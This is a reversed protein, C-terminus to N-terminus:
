ATVSLSSAASATGGDNTMYAHMLKMIQMMVKEESDNEAVTSAATASGTGGSGATSQQYAMAERFSVKGDGDTDAADFNQVIASILSSRRSDSSGIEDLQSSLEDKTFGEDDDQAGGSPPPPPPPMGGMGSMGGPGGGQLASQMRGEQFQQELDDHLKELADTFEQQTVKGDSDTDLATFLDDVSASDSNGSSNTGASSIKDFASQLDSKQLYGQGSADLQSFLNEVMRAPDPRQRGYMGTMGQMTTSSSVSSIGSM